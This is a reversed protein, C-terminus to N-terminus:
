CWYKSLWRYFRQHKKRHLFSSMFNLFQLLQLPRSRFEIISVLFNTGFFLQSYRLFFLYKFLCTRNRYPVFIAVHEKPLNPELRPKVPETPSGQPFRQWVSFNWTTSFKGVLRADLYINSSGLGAWGQLGPCSLVKLSWLRWLLAPNTLLGKVKRVIPWLWASVYYSWHTCLHM